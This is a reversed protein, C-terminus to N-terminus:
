RADATQSLTERIRRRWVQFAEEGGDLPLDVLARDTIAAAESASRGCLIGCALDSHQAPTEALQRAKAAFAAGQALHPLFSGAAARLAVLGAANGGGAYCVALGIGSWLDARRHQPFGTIEARIREVDAGYVFWLSRGLGQDFVQRALGKCWVPVRRRRVAKHWHFYGNHFGVGDVVLWRLVPDYHGIRPWVSRRLRAHAWGVGIHVMYIHRSGTGALFNSIRDSPWPTLLDFLALAMAAGEFAFGRMEISVNQLDDALRTTAGAAVVSNYGQLFVRGTEELHRRTQPNACHFGRRVFDAERAPIGLIFTRAAPLVRGFTVPAKCTSSRPGHKTCGRLRFDRRTRGVRDLVRLAVSVGRLDNIARM